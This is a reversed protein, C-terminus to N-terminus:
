HQRELLLLIERQQAKAEPSGSGGRGTAQMALQIVTSGHKTRIAPDAGHELLTRVAATCRTRVARHLPTTGDMNQANPDAGADILCVITAAQAIPDWRPSTPNGVAASHLPESGRRNRARVRAGADILQRVMTPRYSAAAVHLATDDEYIYHGIQALFYSGLSRAQRTAGRPFTAAALVPAETLMKSVLARNNTVIANVLTRLTQETTPGQTRARRMVHLIGRLDVSGAAHDAAGDHSPDLAATTSIAQARSRRHDSHEGSPCSSSAM